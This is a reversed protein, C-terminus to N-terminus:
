REIAGVASDYHANAWWVYVWTLLWSAVIVAAGLVIGLTLGRGVPRALLARDYAILAIFGFYLLMVAATLTGAVRWRATGLATLRTERDDQM